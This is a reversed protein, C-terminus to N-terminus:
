YDDDICELVQSAHWMKQDFETVVEPKGQIRPNVKVNISARESIEHALENARAVIALEIEKGKEFLLKKAMDADKSNKIRSLNIEGIVYSEKTPSFEGLFISDLLYDVGTDEDYFNIAIVPAFGSSAYYIEIIGSEVGILKIRSFFEKEIM